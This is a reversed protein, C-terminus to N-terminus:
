KKTLAAYIILFYAIIAFVTIFISYITQFKHLTESQEKPLLDDKENFVMCSSDEKCDPCYDIRCIKRCKICKAAGNSIFKIETKCCQSVIGENDCRQCDKGIYYKNSVM